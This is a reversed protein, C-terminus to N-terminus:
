VGLQMRCGHPIDPAAKFYPGSLTDSSSGGGRWLHDISASCALNVDIEPSM